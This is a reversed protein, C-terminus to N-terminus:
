KVGRVGEDKVVMKVVLCEEYSCINVMCVYM